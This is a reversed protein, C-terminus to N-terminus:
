WRYEAAETLLAPVSLDHSEHPITPFLQAEYALAQRKATVEPRALFRDYYGGGRGLRTGDQRSFALGPVLILNLEGPEVAHELTPIPEWVGLPGRQLDELGTVEYAHLGMGEVFFLAVRWGRERLWPLLGTILDPENRLGGFLAVTGPPEWLDDRSKLREILQDSWQKLDAPTVARLRDRVQLRLEAKAQALPLM